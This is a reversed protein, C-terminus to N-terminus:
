LTFVNWTVLANASFIKSNDPMDAPLPHKWFLCQTASATHWANHTGQLRRSNLRRSSQIVESSRNDGTKYTFLGLQSLFRTLTVWTFTLRGNKLDLIGVESSKRNVNWVTLPRGPSMLRKDEEEREETRGVGSKWRSNQTQLSTCMRNSEQSPTESSTLRSLLVMPTLLTLQPTNALLLCCISSWAPLPLRRELGWFGRQKVVRPALLGKLKTNQIGAM